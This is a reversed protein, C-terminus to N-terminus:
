IIERYIKITEPSPKTALDEHLIQELQTYLKIVATKNGSSAYAKFIVQYATELYPEVEIAQLCLNVSDQYAGQSLALEAAEVCANEFLRQLREREVVIEIHGVDPLFPGRYPQIANKLHALKDSTHSESEALTLENKFVDVDYEYDLSHNFFYRDDEFLIVEKGIARRLRYIANKFRLKMDDPEADPWFALGVAEKTVGGPHQLIFFFLDRSLVTQWMANTVTKNNLKVQMSGLSRISLRPPGFSVIRTHQRVHRRLGPLLADFKGVFALLKTSASNLEATDAMRRLIHILHQAPVILNNWDNVTQSAHLALDLDKSAANLEGV